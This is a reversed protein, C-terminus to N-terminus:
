VARVSAVPALRRIDDPDSTLVTGQTRVAILAVHADIVDSTGTRALLEGVRRADKSDLSPVGTLHHRLLKALRAQNAGDRWAQAVCGAPVTVRHGRQRAREILGTVERTNRELAILAGTDLVLGTM